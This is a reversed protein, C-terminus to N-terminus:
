GVPAVLDVTIRVGSTSVVTLTGDAVTLEDVPNSEALYCVWVLREAPDLRAFFGESGHSGEGGCVFGDSVPVKRTIDISTVWEPDEALLEALDVPEVVSLRGEVVDVAYSRGDAFYVGDEIPLHGEQWLTVIETM